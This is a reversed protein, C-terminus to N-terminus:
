LKDLYRSLPPIDAALGKRKRVELVIDHSMGKEMADGPMKEWHDFVCQPFAQGGTNSRLAATFGFSEKVPLYAKVLTMPTGARPVEAFVHGRRQTLTGYIGGSAAVPCTIECLFVPEVLTPKATMLAAYMVRRAPPMVQGMGRHISDAHLTVDHLNFRVGRMPEGCLPGEKGAWQFGANVSEKIENLYQVAKTVDCLINPGKTEPAFSWIKLAEKVDWDWNDALYRANKKRDGTGPPLIKGDDIEACFDEDLPEATMYLRNHKNPSKALCTCRSEETVTERFAVVPPTVVIPINGKLYDDRLDKICIELHLEGAGAVIHEGSETNTIVVMPDSKSLRKLAEVLKPLDGARKTEVAVRVVPSVSFKMQVIPCAEAHDAGTLTATKIIFNDVGV